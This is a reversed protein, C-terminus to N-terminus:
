RIAGERAGQPAAMQVISGSETVTQWVIKEGATKPFSDEFEDNTLQVALYDGLDLAMIEADWNDVYSMWTILGDRIQPALDDWANSTLKITRSGNFYYVELDTDDYAQWVVRGEWICPASNDQTNESIKRIVGDKFHFIESSVTPHAIWAIEGNWVVPSIDDFQNNTIQEILGSDFLYRYIEYDNGDWAQFVLENGHVDPNLVYFYNTTIQLLRDAGSKWVLMEYGYPWGRACLFAAGAESFAPANFHRTGPTIREIGSEPRYVAVDADKGSTRWMQRQITKDPQEKIEPAAAEDPPPNSAAAELASKPAPLPPDFLTPYDSEMQRMLDTKDPIVLEFPYGGGVNDKFVSLFVVADGSVVPRESRAAIRTDDRTINRAEGDRWIFVDSRHTGPTAALVDPRTAVPSADAHLSYSQWAVLGGPGISPLRSNGQPDSLTQISFDRAGAAGALLLLGALAVAAPRRHSPPRQPTM